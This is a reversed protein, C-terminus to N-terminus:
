EWSFSLSVRPNSVIPEHYTGKPIFISDGPELTYTVDTCRYSVKGKAQVILVDLDDYHDAFTMSQDGFSIYTHMVKVGSDNSVCNFTEGITGPHYDGRLFFSPPHVADHTLLNKNTYKKTTPPHIEFENWIVVMETYEKSIKEVVDDWSIKKAVPYHNKTFIISM